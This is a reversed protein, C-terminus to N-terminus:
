RRVNGGVYRYSRQTHGARQTSETILLWPGSSGAPPTFTGVFTHGGDTLYGPVEGGAAAADGGPAANAMLSSSSSGTPAFDRLILLEDLKVQGSDPSYYGPNGATWDLKGNSHLKFTRFEGSTQGGPNPEVNPDMVRISATGDDNLLVNSLALVHGFSSDSPLNHFGVAIAGGAEFQELMEQPTFGYTGGGGVLHDLTYDRGALLGTTFFLFVATGDRADDGGTGSSTTQMAQGLATVLKKNDGDFVPALVPAEGTDQLWQLNAGVSTPVCAAHQAFDYGLFHQEFLPINRSGVPALIWKVKLSVIDEDFTHAVVQFKSSSDPAANFQPSLIAAVPPTADWYVRVSSQEGTGVERVTLDGWGEELRQLQRDLAISFVRKECPAGDCDPGFSPELHGYDTGLQVAPLRVDERSEPQFSFEVGVTDEQARAYIKGGPTLLQGEFLGSVRVRPPRTDQARAGPPGSAALVCAGATVLLAFGKQM